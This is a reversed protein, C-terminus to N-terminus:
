PGVIAALENAPIPFMTTIGGVEGAPGFECIGEEVAQSLQWKALMGAPKTAAEAVRLAGPLRNAM